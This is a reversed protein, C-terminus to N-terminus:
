HNISLNNLLDAEDVLVNLVEEEELQVGDLLNSLQVSSDVVENAGVSPVSEVEESKNNILVTRNENPQALHTKSTSSRNVFVM